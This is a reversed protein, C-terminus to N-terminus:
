VIIMKLLESVNQIWFDEIPQDPINSSNIIDNRNSFTCNQTSVVNWIGGQVSTLM